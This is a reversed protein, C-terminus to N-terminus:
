LQAEDSSGFVRSCASTSLRERDDLTVDRQHRVGM